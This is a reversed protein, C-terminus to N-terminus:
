RINNISNKATEHRAKMVNSLTTFRRNEAQIQEQLRLLEMNDDAMSRTLDDFDQPGEPGPGEAAESSAGSRAGRVAASVVTGGPIMASASEVGSLLGDAGTDLVDRFRASAPQPTARTRTSEVHVDTTRRAPATSRFDTM